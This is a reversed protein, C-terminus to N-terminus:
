NSANIGFNSCLAELGGGFGQGIANFKWEGNHYYLEAVVIATEISFDESLDYRVLETGTDDDLVHIYANEVIGFNVTGTNDYITCTFSIRTKGTAAVADLDITIVEDDGEGDGTKNDGKHEIGPGTKNNYFIFDEESACRKSDDTVFAAADLDYEVGGDYRNVDWGLGVRLHKLSAIGADAAVKKLSVKGGKALSVAM